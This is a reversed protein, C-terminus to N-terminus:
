AVIHIRLAKAVVEARSHVHLKARGECRREGSGAALQGISHTSSVQAAPAPHAPSRARPSRVPAVQRMSMFRFSPRERQPECSWGALRVKRARANGLPSVPLDPPRGAPARPRREPRAPLDLVLRVKDALEDVTFPKSLLPLGAEMGTRLLSEENYGSIFLVRTNGHAEHIRRWIDAGSLGPMVVDTILLDFPAAAAAALELADAGLASSGVRAEPQRHTEAM